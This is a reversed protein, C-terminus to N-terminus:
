RSACVVASVRGVSSFLIQVAICIHSLRCCIAVISKELRSVAEGLLLSSVVTDRFDEAGHVSRVM